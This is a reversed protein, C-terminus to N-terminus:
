VFLHIGGQYQYDFHTTYCVSYNAPSQAAGVCLVRHVDCVYIQALQAGSGRGRDTYAIKAARDPIQFFSM